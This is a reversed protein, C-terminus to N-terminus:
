RVGAMTPRVPSPPIVGGQSPGAGNAGAVQATELDTVRQGLAMVAECLNSVESRAGAYLQETATRTEELYKRLTGAEQQVDFRLIM